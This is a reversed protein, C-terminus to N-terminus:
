TITIQFYLYMIIIVFHVVVLIVTSAGSCSMVFYYLSLELDIVRSLLVVTRAVFQILLSMECVSFM